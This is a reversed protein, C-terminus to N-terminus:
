IKGMIAGRPTALSLVEDLTVIKGGGAGLLKM